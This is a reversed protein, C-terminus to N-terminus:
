KLAPFSNRSRTSMLFYRASEGPRHLVAAYDFSRATKKARPFKPVASSRLYVCIPSPAFIDDRQEDPGNRLVYAPLQEQALGTPM